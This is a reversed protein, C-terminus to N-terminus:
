AFRALADPHAFWRLAGRPVRADELRICAMAGPKLPVIAGTMLALWHSLYPEHGVILLTSDSPFGSWTRSLEDFNGALITERHEVPLERPFAEALIEATETARLAPSTWIAVGKDCDVFRVLGQASARARERGEATLHRDLDRERSGAAEAKGHRVLVLEM